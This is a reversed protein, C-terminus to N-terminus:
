PLGIEHSEKSLAPRPGLATRFRFLCEHIVKPRTLGSSIVIWFPLLCSPKCIPEIRHAMRHPTRIRNGSWMDLSQVAPMKWLSFLGLMQPVQPLQAAGEANERGRENKWWSGDFTSGCWECGATIGIHVLCGKFSTRNCYFLELDGSYPIALLHVLYTKVGLPKL